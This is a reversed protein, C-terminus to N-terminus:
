RTFLLLDPSSEGKKIGAILKKWAPRNFTKASHDEIFLKEVTIGKLNCYQRLLEEQTKLSSGKSAQEDTSLRIYLIASKQLRNPSMNEAFFSSLKQILRFINVNQAKLNKSHSDTSLCTFILSLILILAKM